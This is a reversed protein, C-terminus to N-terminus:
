SLEKVLYERVRKQIGPSKSERNGAVNLTIISKDGIFKALEDQVPNLLHYKKLQICLNLTLRSGPSSPNGFVVTLDSNQVNIRTRAPYGPFGCEALGYSMLLKPKPGDETRWGMPATGGVRLGLERGAELGGQDAGTQGGSIIKKLTM